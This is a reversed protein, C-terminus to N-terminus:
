SFSSAIEKEVIWIEKLSCQQIRKSQIKYNEKSTKWSFIKWESGFGKYILFFFPALKRERLLIFVDHNGGM